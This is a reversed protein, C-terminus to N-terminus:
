EIFPQFYLSMAVFLTSETGVLTTVSVTLRLVPVPLTASAPQVYPLVALLGTGVLLVM